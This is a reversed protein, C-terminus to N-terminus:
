LGGVEAHNSTEDPGWPIGCVVQELTPWLGPWGAAVERLFRPTQVNSPNPIPCM